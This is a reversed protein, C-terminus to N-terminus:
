QGKNRKKLAKARVGGLVHMTIKNSLFEPLLSQIFEQIDHTWYGTTFPLAIHDLASVVFKEPTPAILSAKRIGSLKSVVYGPCLSQVYVGRSICEAALSRSFLDIFGKTGSYLDLLPTPRRGSISSVNVILGRKKKIMDPLIIQTLNAVSDVNCRIMNNLFKENDDVKDFCEPYEYSMGVNNILVGIDLGRIEERITSYISSDERKALEVAYAKGIGDTSGTILAWEGFKKIDVRLPCLVQYIFTALRALIYILAFAGFTELLGM